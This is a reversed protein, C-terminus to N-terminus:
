HTEETLDLLQKYPLLKGWLVPVSYYAGSYM